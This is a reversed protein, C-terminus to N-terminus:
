PLPNPPVNRCHGGCNEKDDYSLWQGCKVSKFLRVNSGRGTTVNAVSSIGPM